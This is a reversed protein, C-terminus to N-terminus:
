IYVLDLNYLIRINLEVFDKGCVPNFDKPRRGDGDQIAFGKM